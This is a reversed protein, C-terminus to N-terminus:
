SLNGVTSTAAIGSALVRQPSDVSQQLGPVYMDHIGIQFAVEVRNRVFAQQLEDGLFDAVAPHQCEDLRKEFLTHHIAYALPVGYLSTWLTRDNRRQQTVDIEIRQVVKQGGSAEFHHTICVVEHNQTARCLICVRRQRQHPVPRGLSAQGQMRVLRVHSVRFGVAEFKQSIVESTAFTKGSRLAQLFQLRRDALFRMAFLSVTDVTCNLVYVRRKDSPASVEFVRRVTAHERIQIAKNPLTQARDQLFLCLNRSNGFASVKLAPRVGEKAVMLQEAQFCGM